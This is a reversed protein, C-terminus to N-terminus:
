IFDVLEPVNIILCNWEIYSVSVIMSLMSESNKRLFMHVCACVYM